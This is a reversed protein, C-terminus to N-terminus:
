ERVVVVSSSKNLVHVAVQQQKLGLSRRPALNKSQDKRQVWASTLCPLWCTATQTHSRSSVHGAEALFNDKARYEQGNSPGM